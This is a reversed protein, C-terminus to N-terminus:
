TEEPDLDDDVDDDVEVPGPPLPAEGISAHLITAIVHSCIAGRTSGKMTGFPCTCNTTRDSSLRVKYEGSSGWVAYYRVSETEDELTIRRQRWLKAGKDFIGVDVAACRSRGEHGKQTPRM